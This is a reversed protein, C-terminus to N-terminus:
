RPHPTGLTRLLAFIQRLDSGSLSHAGCVSLLEAMKERLLSCDQSTDDQSDKFWALLSGVVGARECAGKSAVSEGVLGLFM